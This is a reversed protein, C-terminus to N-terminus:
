IKEFVGADAKVHPIKKYASRPISKRKNNEYTRKKKLVLGYLDKAKTGLLTSNM